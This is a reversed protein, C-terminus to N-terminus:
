KFMLFTIWSFMSFFLCLMINWSALAQGSNQSCVLNAAPIFKASGRSLPAWLMISDSWPSHFHSLLLLLRNLIREETRTDVMSLADDLILIPHDQILARAITLRQRQGGSLTLGREGLLTDLGDKFDLVEEYFDADKLARKLTEDSVGKRGFLVNNRVTDSFVVVEQPVFGINGRLVSLPIVKIDINDVGIGARGIVKLNTAQNLVKETVKTASRVALGDFDGIMELFRDKDKGVEPEFTVDLGRDRFIQVATDSLKDSILVRPAM